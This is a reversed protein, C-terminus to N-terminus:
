LNRLEIDCKMIYDDSRQKNEYKGLSLNSPESLCIKVIRLPMLINERHLLM